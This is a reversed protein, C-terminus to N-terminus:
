AQEGRARARGAALAQEPTPTGASAKGFVPHACAFLREVRERTEHDYYGAWYGLNVKAIQEATMGDDRPEADLHKQIFAAYAALYQAADAEDAIKMAPGLCEGYNLSAKGEPNFPTHKAPLADKRDPTM